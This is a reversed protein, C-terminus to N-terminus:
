RFLNSSQKSYINHEWLDYYTIISKLDTFVVLQEGTDYGTARGSLGQIICNMVPKKTNREYLIGIHTKIITKACRLREKIFIFTHKLPPKSLLKNLNLKDSDIIINASESWVSKFHYLTLNQKTGNNTRIIHYLPNDYKELIFDKLEEVNERIVSPVPCDFGCLDKYQLVRDQILLDFISKYQPPPKMKAMSAFPNTTFFSLNNPTATFFVFKLNHKQLYEIDDFKLIKFISALTQDGKNGIHVEDLIVLIDQINKNEIDSYFKYFNNRHYIRHHLCEPFRERTQVVWDTSSIGTIIFINDLPISLTPEKLFHHITSLMSGTKGSQTLAFALFYVLEKNDIFSEAITKGFDFQNKFVNIPFDIPSITEPSIM